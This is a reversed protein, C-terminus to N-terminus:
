LRQGALARDVEVAAPHVGGDVAAVPEARAFADGARRDDLLVGRGGDGRGAIHDRDVREAVEEDLDGTVSCRVARRASGIMVSITRLPRTAVVSSIFDFRIRVAYLMIM